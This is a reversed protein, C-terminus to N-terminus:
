ILGSSAKTLHSKEDTSKRDVTLRDCSNSLFSSFTLEPCFHVLPSLFCINEVFFSIRLYLLVPVDNKFLPTDPLNLSTKGAIDIM